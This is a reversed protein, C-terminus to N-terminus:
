WTAKEEGCWPKRDITVKVSTEVYFPNKVATTTKYDCFPFKIYNWESCYCDYIHYFRSKQIRKLPSFIHAKRYSSSKNIKWQFSWFIRVKKFNWILKSVDFSQTKLIKFTFFELILLEVLAKLAKSLSFNM